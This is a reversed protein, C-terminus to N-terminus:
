GTDYNIKKICSLCVSLHFLVKLQYRFGKKDFTFLLYLYEFLVLISDKLFWLPINLISRKSRKMHCSYTQGSFFYWKRFYAKQLRDPGIKHYVICNPKYYIKKGAKLIRYFLETDGGSLLCTGRRDLNPNFYGVEDFITKRLAFNAGYFQFKGNIIQFSNDGYDLLALNEYFKKTLWSPPVALWRPLIKGGLAGLTSEQFSAYINEIWKRDVIVDDDTFAIINGRAEKIGRNRAYCLGQNPEFFYKLKKNFEEMFSQVIDKTLDSSNNDVVMVEYDFVGNCEQNLLSDLTDKLSECRNYTCIIVSIM